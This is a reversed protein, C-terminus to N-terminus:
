PRISFIATSCNLIVFGVASCTTTIRHFFSGHIPELDPDEEYPEKKEERERDNDSPHKLELHQLFLFEVLHRGLLLVTLDRQNGLPADDVVPFAILKGDADFDIGDIGIASIPDFGLLRGLKQSRDELRVEGLQPSLKLASSGEFPNLPFDGRPFGFLNFGKTELSNVENTFVLAEIGIAGQRSLHNAKHTQIRLAELPQFQLVIGKQHPFAM